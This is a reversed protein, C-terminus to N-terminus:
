LALGKELQLGVFLALLEDFLEPEAAAGSGVQGVVVKLFLVIPTDGIGVLM